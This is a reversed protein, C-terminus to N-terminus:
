KRNRLRWSLKHLEMVLLIPVSCVLLWTWLEADIPQTALLVNGAPLYTMALHISFATIMGVLLVPSRLPSM